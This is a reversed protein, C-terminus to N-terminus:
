RMLDLNPLHSVDGLNNYTPHLRSIYWGKALEDIDKGPLSM